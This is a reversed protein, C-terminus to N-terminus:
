ELIERYHLQSRGQGCLAILSYSGCCCLVGAVLALAGAAISGMHMSQNQKNVETMSGTALFVIGGIFVILGACLWMFMFCISFATSGKDGWCPLTVVFCFCLLPAALPVTIIITPAGVMVM